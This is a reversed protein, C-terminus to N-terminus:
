ARGAKWLSASLRLTSAFILATGFWPLEAMLLIKIKEATLTSIGIPPVQIPRWDFFFREESFPYFMLVGLGGNTLADLIPHSVGALSLALFVRFAHAWDKRSSFAKALISVVGAAAVLAVPSHTIGRHGLTHGYPIKGFGVVDIDPLVAYCGTLGVFAIKKLLSEDKQYSVFPLALAAGTIFHGIVTAM